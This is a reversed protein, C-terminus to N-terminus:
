VFLYDSVLFMFARDAIVDNELQVGVKVTQNGQSDLIWRAKIEKIIM